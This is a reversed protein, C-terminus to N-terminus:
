AGATTVSWAVAAATVLAESEGAALGHETEALDGAHRRHVSNLVHCDRIRRLGGGVHEPFLGATRKSWPWAGGIIPV